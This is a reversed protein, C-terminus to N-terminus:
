HHLYRVAFLLDDMDATTLPLLSSFEPEEMEQRAASLRMKWRIDDSMVKGQFVM